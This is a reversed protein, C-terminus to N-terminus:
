RWPNDWWVLFNQSWLHREKDDRGMYVPSQIAEILHFLANSSGNLHTENVGQLAKYISQATSHSTLYGVIPGRTHVRITARDIKSEAASTGTQTVVPAPGAGEIIGVAADPQDVLLSVFLNVTGSGNFNLGLGQGQLYTAIEEALSLM